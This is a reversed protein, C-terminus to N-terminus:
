AQSDGSQTRGKLVFTYTVMHILAIMIDTSDHYLKSSIEMLRGLLSIPFIPKPLKLFFQKLVMAISNIHSNDNMDKLPDRDEEFDKMFQEM